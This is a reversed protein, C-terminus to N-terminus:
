LQEMIVKSKPELDKALGTELRTKLHSSNGGVDSSHGRSGFICTHRYSLEGDWPPEALSSQLTCSTIDQEAKLM